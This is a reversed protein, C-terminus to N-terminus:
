THRREAVLRRRSRRGSRRGSQSALPNATLEATAAVLGTDTARETNVPAVVDDVNVAGPPLSHSSLTSHLSNRGGHGGPEAHRSNGRRPTVRNSSSRSSPVGFAEDDSGSSSPLRLELGATPTTATGRGRRARTVRRPSRQRGAPPLAAGSGTGSGNDSDSSSSDSSSNSRRRSATTPRRSARTGSGASPSSVTSEETVESIADMGVDGRGSSWGGVGGGDDDTSSSDDDDDSSSDGRAAEMVARRRAASGTSRTTKRSGFFSPSVRSRQGPSPAAPEPLVPSALPTAMADAGFKYESHTSGMPTTAGSATADSLTGSSSSRYLVTTLLRGLSGFSSTSTLPQSAMSSASVCHQDGVFLKMRDTKSRFKSKALAATRGGGPTATTVVGVDTSEGHGSGRRKGVVLLACLGFVVVVAAIGGWVHLPNRFVEMGPTDAAAEQGAGPTPPSRSALLSPHPRPLPLEIASAQPNPPTRGDQAVAYVTYADAVVGFTSLETGVVENANAVAVVTTAAISCAACTMNFVQSTSPVQSGAAVVMVFVNAPEDLALELRPWTTANGHTINPSADLWVPPDVDPGTTASVVAAVEQVNGVGDELVIAVYAVSQAQLEDGVVIIVGTSAALEVSGADVVTYGPSAAGAVVLSSSIHAPRTDGLLLVWHARCAEAVVVEVAVSSATAAAPFETPFGDVFSPPTTDSM